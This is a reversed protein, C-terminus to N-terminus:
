SVSRISASRWCKSFAARSRPIRARDAPLSRYQRRALDTRLPLRTERARRAATGGRQSERVPADRLGRGAVPERVRPQAARLLLHLRARLRPVSQDVAHVTHRTFQQALHHKERARDHRSDQARPLEEDPPRIGATTSRRARSKKSADKPNIRRRPRQPARCTRSQRNETGYTVKALRAACTFDTSYGPNFASVNITKDDDDRFIIPVEGHTQYRAFLRALPM